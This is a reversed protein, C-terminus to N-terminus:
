ESAETGNNFKSVEVLIPDATKGKASRDVDKAASDITLLLARYRSEGVGGALYVGLFRERLTQRGDYDGLDVGDLLRAIQRPTLIGRKGGRQHADAKVEAPISPDCDWCWVYGSSRSAQRGCSCMRTALQQGRNPASSSVDPEGTM